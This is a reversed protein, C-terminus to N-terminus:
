IKEIKLNHSEQAYIRVLDGPKLPESSVANWETGRFFVRGRLESGIFATVVRAESGVIDEFGAETNVVEASLGKCRRMAVARLTFLLLLSAGAFFAYPIASHQPLGLLLLGGTLLASIGFFILIFYPFLFEALILLVGAIFWGTALTLTTM